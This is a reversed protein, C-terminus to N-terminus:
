YGSRDEYRPKGPAKVPDAKLAKMVEEIARDLQPDGGDVMLAPDDLVEIDPDVGHGEIIWDGENSYMGFTPVTVVGGDILQPAGSIGILGGWTRTGILPGLGAQRFYYPFADGGSGSWGNILMVQKGSHAVPPWGWDRGDRVGWYNTRPRNLLEVFRDPIQGGSNFREDVILGEKHVQGRWMHVLETQGNIGTSPVYIYGVRGDTAEEVKRRNNEIWALNRLRFEQPIPKVLIKRADELDPSDNITLEVTRNALGQFAAWPSVSTDLPMGNVALLYDGENVELGPERLPSRVESDWAGGDLIETIRFAGNEVAYNAGLLGVNGQEPQETDGGGRYAHSSNLEGVLEGLIYNLDWRTVADDLMAGYRRKMAPWDVGHLDPDYFYDRELRWADNFIQRWEERPDLTMTMGSTDLKKDWSQKPAIEVIALGQHGGVILSNGDASVEYGLSGGIISKEEREKLDYYVIEGGAPGNGGNPRAAGTRPQRRYIVKGSVARLDAYNGNDAPLIVARREFGELDIEVAKPEDKKDDKEEGEKEDANDDGDEKDADEGDEDDDKDDTDEGDKDDEDDSEIEEVDNRPALPSAVDARLPVAVVNTTNAYIWTNDMDSYSPQFTRSSFFYLYDGDPDFEPNTEGNFGATVQHLEGEKTDYLFIASNTNELGRSFAAWRSDGSWAVRFGTLNGHFLFLGKSMKVVKDTDMDHYQINMAQDVFAMKKSDPSWFIDYRFGPGMSTVTDEEGTGDSKRLTLEYEGTRDSFYAIWKGDPSWAPSREAVGSSRTLNRTVGHEAPITFIEGRAEVVARKAKPSIGGSSINESVNIVRPKLTAEDTVVQIDVKRQKESALDFLYLDPGASFVIEDPGMGPFMVDFEKFSTLQTTDGTAPDIKWLNARKNKGRDSLFYVNDGNWMPQADNALDKTLLRSEHTNLNFLWIDPTMGGRYRKWTRFDRTVLTYALTEGDASLTGFEGYPVPLKAPLGGDRDVRYLQNFRTRGSEMLSAFLVSRGDPAWDLTRDPAPHHTLRTPVGGGTAVTYVDQNGDYNGTFAISSGDPSFRPLAEQGAPTSLRQAMGGEKPAVWIDGAYVFAIQTDSVDPMRMMSADLGALAVAPTLLFLLASLLRSSVRM